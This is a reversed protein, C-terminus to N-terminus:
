PYSLTGLKLGGTLGTDYDIIPSSTDIENLATAGRTASITARNLIFHRPNGSCYILPTGFGPTAGAVGLPIPGWNGAGDTEHFATRNASNSWDIYTGAKIWLEAVNGVYGTNSGLSTAWPINCAGGSGTVQAIISRFAKAFGLRTAQTIIGMTPGVGISMPYKYGVLSAVLSAFSAVPGTFPQDTFTTNLTYNMDHVSQGGICWVNLGNDVSNNDPQAAFSWMPNNNGVSGSGGSNLFVQTDNVYATVVIAGAGDTKASIM